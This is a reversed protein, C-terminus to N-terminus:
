LQKSNSQRNNLFIQALDISPMLDDCCPKYRPLWSHTEGPHRGWSFQPSLMELLAHPTWKSGPQQSAPCRACTTTTPIRFTLSPRVETPLLLYSSDHLLQYQAIDLWLTQGGVGVGRGHVEGTISEWFPSKPPFRAPLPTSKAEELLEKIFADM